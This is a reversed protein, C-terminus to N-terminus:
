WVGYLFTLLELFPEKNFIDSMSHSSTFAFSPMAVLCVQSLTTWGVVDLFCPDWWAEEFRLCPLTVDLFYSLFNVCHNLIHAAGCKALLTMVMYNLSILLIMCTTFYTLKYSIRCPAVQISILWCKSAAVEIKTVLTILFTARNSVFFLFSLMPVPPLIPVSKYLRQSTPTLWTFGPM